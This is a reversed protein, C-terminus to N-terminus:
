SAGARPQELNRPGGLWLTVQLLVPTQQMRMQQQAVTLIEAPLLPVSKVTDNQPFPSVANPYMTFDSFRKLCWPMVLSGALKFAFKRYLRRSPPHRSLAELRQREGRRTLSTSFDDTVLTAVARINLVSHVARAAKKAHNGGQSAKRLFRPSLHSMDTVTPKSM